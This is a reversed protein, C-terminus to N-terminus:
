RYTPAAMAKQVPMTTLRYGNGSMYILKSMRQMYKLKSFNSFALQTALRLRM